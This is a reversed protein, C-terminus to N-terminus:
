LWPEKLREDPIMHRSRFSADTTHLVRLFTSCLVKQVIPKSMNTREARFNYYRRLSTQSAKLSSCFSFNQVGKTTATEIKLSAEVKHKRHKIKPLTQGESLSNFIVLRADEVSTHFDTRTCTHTGGVRELRRCLLAPSPSSTILTTM